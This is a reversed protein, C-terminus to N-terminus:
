RRERRCGAEVGARMSKREKGLVDDVIRRVIQPHCCSQRLGTFAALARGVAKSTHRVRNAHQGAGQQQQVQYAADCFARKSQEYCLREVSSLQVWKDERTCPPLELEGAVDAKSRRLMVGRLLSRLSLLGGVSQAEYSNQLLGRWVPGHHYPEAALFELLGKIEDLKSSIPTGTVVWAHRRWLSSAVVAAVSSSNAVLQAEDLVVRWFGFQALLSTHSGSAYLQDRLQEYSMLVVDLEHMPKLQGDSTRCLIPRIPDGRALNVTGGAAAVRRSRRTRTAVDGEEEETRKGAAAAAAVGPPLYRAWSIRGPQVHREIEEAWQPLAALSAL